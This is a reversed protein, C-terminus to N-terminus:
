RGSAIPPLQESEAVISPQCHRAIKNRKVLHWSYPEVLTHKVESNFCIQKSFCNYDSKPSFQCQRYIVKHVFRFYPREKGIWNNTAWFFLAKVKSKLFYRM